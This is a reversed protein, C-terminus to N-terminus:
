SSGEKQIFKILNNKFNLNDKLFKENGKVDLNKIIMISEDLANFLPDPYFESEWRELFLLVTQNIEMDNPREYVDIVDEELKGKLQQTIKVKYKTGDIAYDELGEVEGVVIFQADAVLTELDEYIVSKEGEEVYQSDHDELENIIQSSSENTQCGVMILLFICITIFSSLIRM